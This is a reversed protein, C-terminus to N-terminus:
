LIVINAKTGEELQQQVKRMEEEKKKREAELKREKEARPKLYAYRNTGYVIGLLLASYRGVKILPSVNVPAVMKEASVLGPLLFFLQQASTPSLLSPLPTASSILILVCCAHAGPLPAPGFRRARRLEPPRPQPLTRAASLFKGVRVRKKATDRAA